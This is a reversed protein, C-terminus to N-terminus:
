RIAQALASKSSVQRLSTDLLLKLQQLLPQAYEKRVAARQEPARGHISSEIAFLAAIQELAELATPSATAHHVDYIKRRVHSWCAVEIL